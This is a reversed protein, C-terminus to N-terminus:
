FPVDQDQDQDAELRQLMTEWPTTPKEGALLYWFDTIRGGRSTPGFVGSDPREIDLWTRFIQIFVAM